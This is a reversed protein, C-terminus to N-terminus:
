VVGSSCGGGRRRAVGAYGITRQVHQRGCSCGGDEHGGICAWRAASKTGEYVVGCYCGGSKRGGVCEQNRSRARATACGFGL